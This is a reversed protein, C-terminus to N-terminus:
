AHIRRPGFFHLMITSTRSPGHGGPGSELLIMTALVPTPERPHQRFPHNLQMRTPPVHSAVSPALWVESWCLANAGPNARPRLPALCARACAGVFIQKAADPPHRPAAQPGLCFSSIARLCPSTPSSRSRSRFAQNRAHQHFAAAAAARAAAAAAAAASALLSGPRTADPCLMAAHCAPPQM